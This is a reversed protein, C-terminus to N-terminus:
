YAKAQWDTLAVRMSPLQSKFTDDGKDGLKIAKRAYVIATTYDQKSALLRAKIWNNMYVDKLRISENIYRLALEGQLNNQVLYDAAQALLQWNSPASALTKEIGKIVQEHVNTEITMSVTRKEWSLNLRATTPKVESFWYVLTEYMPATESSVPVRLLDDKADYGESGWHTTVRNLILQWDQNDQPLVYFSYKGAPVPEGNIKVPASFTILTNENAGARWVQGWPVLQGWIQRGRVGPAHYDVSVDTLGITQLVYAHPSAQPLPLQPTDAAPQQALAPASAIGLLLCCASATLLRSFSRSLSTLM